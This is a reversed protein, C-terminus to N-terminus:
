HAQPSGALRLRDVATELNLRWLVGWSLARLFSGAWFVVSYGGLGAGILIPLAYAWVIEGSPLFVMLGAISLAAVM